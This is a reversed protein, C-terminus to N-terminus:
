IMEKLENLLQEVKYLHGRIVDTSMLEFAYQSVGTDARGLEMEIEYFKKEIPNDITKEEYIIWSQYFEEGGLTAFNDQIGDEMWYSSGHKEKYETRMVHQAAEFTSYRRIDEEAGQTELIWKGNPDKADLSDIYDDMNEFDLLEYKGKIYEPECFESIYDILNKPYYLEIDRYETWKISEMDGDMNYVCYEYENDEKNVEVELFYGNEFKALM